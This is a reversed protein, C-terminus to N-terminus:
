QRNYGMDWLNEIVNFEPSVAPWDLLNIKNKTFRKMSFASKHCPANDQVYYWTVDPDFNKEIFPLLVPEIVSIYNQGNMRGDYFVLPSVGKGTMIGWVGISRGDGQVLPQFNFSKDSKSPLHRVFSKKKRNFVEFHSEDSFIVTKWDSFNWNSCQKTFKLRASCHSPKRYPKRKTTYSKYGANFLRRRVMRASISKGHSSNWESALQRSSKRRDKKMLNLLYRDEKFTALKKRGQGPRNEFPLKLKDKKGINSICGNSVGLQGSALVSGTHRYRAHNMNSIMTSTGTSPDYLETSNLSINYGGSTALVQGNTLVSAVHQYRGSNMNNAVTWLETSPDYLETSSLVFSGNSGGTVLVKGNTLLSATHESRESNMSGTVIWAGTSPDYLEASNGQSGLGGSVLFKGNTLISTTHLERSYSMNGIVMWTGTTPDYLEASNLCLSSGSGSTILM